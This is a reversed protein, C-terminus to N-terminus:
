YSFEDKFVADLWFAINVRVEVFCARLLVIWAGKPSAILVNDDPSEV